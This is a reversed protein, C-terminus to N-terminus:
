FAIAIGTKLQWESTKLNPSISLKEPRLLMKAKHKNIGGLIFCPISSILLGAGGIFLLSAIAAQSDNNSGTESLDLYDKPFLAIGLAGLAVGTGALVFATQIQRKGKLYYDNKFMKNAQEQRVSDSQSYVIPAITIIIVTLFLLKKM